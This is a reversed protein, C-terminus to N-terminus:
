TETKVTTRTRLFASVFGLAGGLQWMTLDRPVGFARLTNLIEDGWFLSVTWGAFAGLLANLPAIILLAASFLVAAGITKALGNWFDSM